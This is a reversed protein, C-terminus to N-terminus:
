DNAKLAPQLQQVVAAAVRQVDADNDQQLPAIAEIADEVADEIKALNALKALALIAAKRVAAVPDQLRAVLSPYAAPPNLRALNAAAEIRVEAATDSLAEVLRDLAKQTRAPHPPDAAPAPQPSAQALHAIAGVAAIRVTADPDSMMDYLSGEIEHSMSAIAWAAHGKCSESAQPSSLIERLAVFAPAGVKALAAAAASKVGVDADNRLAEALAPVSAVDDIRSLANCCVRRVLPQEHQIVGELLFPTAAEGIQSFANVLALRAANRPDTLCQVMQRLLLPDPEDFALLEIQENVYDILLDVRSQAAESEPSSAEGSYIPFIPFIPEGSELSNPDNL